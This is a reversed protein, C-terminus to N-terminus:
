RSQRAAASSGQPRLRPNFLGYILVPLESTTCKLLGFLSRRSDGPGRAPKCGTRGGFRKRTPFVRSCCLAQRSAAFLYISSTAEEIEM